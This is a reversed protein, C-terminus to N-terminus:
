GSVAATPNKLEAIAQDLDDIQRQLNRAEAKATRLVENQADLGEKVQVKQSELAGIRSKREEYQARALANAQGSPESKVRSGM